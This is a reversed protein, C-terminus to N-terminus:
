TKYACSSLSVGAKGSCSAVVEPGEDGRCCGCGGCCCCACRRGTGGDVETVAEPDGLGLGDCFDASSWVLDSLVPPELSSTVRPIAFVENRSQSTPAFFFSNLGFPCHGSRARRRREVLNELASGTGQQKKKM